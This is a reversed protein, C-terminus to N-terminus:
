YENIIKVWDKLKNAKASEFWRARAHINPTKNFDFTDGVYLYHAYVSAWVIEGSNMDTGTIGSTQLTGEAKPAYYNSDKLVQTNLIPQLTGMHKTLKKSARAINFDLIIDM